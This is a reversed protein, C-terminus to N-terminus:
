SVKSVVDIASVTIKKKERRRRVTLEQGGDSRAASKAKLAASRSGYKPMKLEQFPMSQQLLHYPM